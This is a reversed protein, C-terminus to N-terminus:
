KPPDKRDFNRAAGSAVGQLSEARSTAVKSAVTLFLVPQPSARFLARPSLVFEIVGPSQGYRGLGFPLYAKRFQIPAGTCISPFLV